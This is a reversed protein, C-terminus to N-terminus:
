RVMIVRRVASMGPWEYRVFYLAAPARGHETAGDWVAQYRGPRYVGHALQAVRRGQVDLVTLRVRAERAVSFGVQVAGRSPNPALTHLAFERPSEGAIAEIPGFTLTGGDRSTALLRYYYTAGPEVGRDYLVITGALERREANVASWPGQLAEARELASGTFREPEAFQWRLEIGEGTWNAQFMSLLTPTPPAEESVLIEQDAAPAPRLVQVVGTPWIVILSDLTATGLGFSAVLADQSGYGSGGSLERIQTIGGAVVKVRAGIGARNSATGALKVQLWHNGNAVDNRFLKNAQGNNSLYLDLDGDNDFDGWAVGSGDGTDGLPGSTADVFTGGGDNRFLKNAQGFYNALYLDLDGDNDYDGWAVGFGAGTDGLPGSTADVFTGYGENRFLKNAQGNNALYLDLDGDNDYDGWAVSVGNGTNGLPPTTADVFTGGGQNRFLKNAQGYNALYLDLDGDNDYDGWAVGIGRGTDGLPGSTADVFTGVGENRLLKNAQGLENAIYLDLDGYNDYDGWAVCYGSGTNGLPGSTADVFTGGGDNRLLKNAGDNSVYLDLDGDNDYDGWAVGFGGGADGLPGSTVDVFTGGGDNRFLKNPGNNVLYLDLDGDNDYDGWAVGYGLGTDGLPGSTVDVWDAAQAAPAIPLSLVVIPISLALAFRFRSAARARAAALSPLAM